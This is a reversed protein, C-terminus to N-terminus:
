WTQATTSCRATSAKWGRWWAYSHARAAVRRGVIVLTQGDPITLSVHDLAQTKASQSKHADNEAEAQTVLREAFARDAQKDMGIRTINGGTGFTARDFTKSVDRLEITAM